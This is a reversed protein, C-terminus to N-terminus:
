RCAQPRLIFSRDDGSKAELTAFGTENEFGMGLRSVEILIGGNKAPTIQFAGADGEMVCYLTSGGENECAAYAEFAGGPVGRLQVTLYLGLLPDAYDFAPSVSMTTVRQAPHSSLHEDSYKRSYCSTGDPFMLGQPSKASLPTALILLAACLVSRIVM